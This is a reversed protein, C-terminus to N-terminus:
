EIAALANDIQSILEATRTGPFHSAFRITGTKGIVYISKMPCTGITFRGSYLSTAEGKPDYLFRLTLKKDKIAQEVTAKDTGLQSVLVIEVGKKEYTNKIKEMDLIVSQCGSCLNTFWFLRVKSSKGKTYSFKKGQFDTLSFSPAVDGVKAIQPTQAPAQNATFFFTLSYIYLAILYLQNKKMNNNQHHLLNIRILM